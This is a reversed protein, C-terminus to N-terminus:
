NIIPSVWHNEYDIMKDWHYKDDANKIDVKKQYIPTIGKTSLEYIKERFVIIAKEPNYLAAYWEKNLKRSM